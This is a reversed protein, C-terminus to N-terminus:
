PCPQPRVGPTLNLTLTLSLSPTLARTAGMAVRRADPDLAPLPAGLGRQGASPVRGCGQGRQYPHHPAGQGATAPRDLADAHDREAEGAAYGPVQRVCWGPPTPAPATAGAKTHPLACKSLTFAIKEESEESFEFPTDASNIETDQHKFPGALKPATAHLWRPKAAGTMAVCARLHPSPLTAAPRHAIPVGGLALRAVSRGAVARARWM